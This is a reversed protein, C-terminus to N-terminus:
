SKGVNHLKDLHVNYRINWSMPKDLLQNTRFNEFRKTMLKGTDKTTNLFNHMKTAAWEPSVAIKEIISNAKPTM